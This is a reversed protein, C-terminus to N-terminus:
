KKVGLSVSRKVDPSVHGLHLGELTLPTPSAGLNFGLHEGVAGQAEPGPLWVPQSQDMWLMLPCVQAGSFGM